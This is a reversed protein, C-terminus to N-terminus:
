PTVSVGKFYPTLKSPEAKYKINLKKMLKKTSWFISLREKLNFYNEPLSPTFLCTGSYSSYTYVELGTPKFKVVHDSYSTFEWMLADDELAIIAKAEQGVSEFPYVVWPFILINTAVLVYVAIVTTVIYLNFKDAYRTM